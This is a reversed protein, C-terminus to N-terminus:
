VTWRTGLAPHQWWLAWIRRPPPPAGESAQTRSPFPVSTCSLAGTASTQPEVQVRTATPHSSEAGPCSSGRWALVEGESYGVSRLGHTATPSPLPSPPLMTDLQCVWPTHSTPSAPNARETPNWQTESQPSPSCGKPLLTSNPEEATPPTPHQRISM